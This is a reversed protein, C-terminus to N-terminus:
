ARKCQEAQMYCCGSVNLPGYVFMGVLPQVDVNREIIEQRKHGWFTREGGLVQKYTCEPATEKFLVRKCQEAKMYCCGFVNVPGYVFMGVLSQVDM